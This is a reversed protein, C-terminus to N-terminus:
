NEKNLQIGLEHNYNDKYLYKDVWLKLSFISKITIKHISITGKMNLHFFNWTVSERLDVFRIFFVFLDYMRTKM